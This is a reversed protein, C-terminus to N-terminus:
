SAAAAISNLLFESYYYISLGDRLQVVVTVDLVFGNDIYGVTMNASATTKLNSNSHTVGAVFENLCLIAYSANADGTVPALDTLGTGFYSHSNYFTWATTFGTIGGSLRFLFGRFTSNGSITLIHPTGSTFSAPTARSLVTSDLTVVFGGEDLTGTVVTINYASGATQHPPGAASQGGTCSGAGFTFAHLSPLAIILVCVAIKHITTSNFFKMM